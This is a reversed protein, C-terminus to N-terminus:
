LPATSNFDFHQLSLTKVTKNEPTYVRVAMGKAMPLQKMGPTLVDTVTHVQTTVDHGAKSLKM